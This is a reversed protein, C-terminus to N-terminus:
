LGGLSVKQFFLKVMHEELNPVATIERRKNIKIWTYLKKEEIIKRILHNDDPTKNKSKILNIWRSLRFATVMEQTTLSQNWPYASTGACLIPPKDDFITRDEFGSIGPVPYFFSIGVRGAHVALYALTSVIGEPTDNKLGCIFYTVSPIQHQKLVDMIREYQSLNGRRNEYALSSPDLSALSINFQKMGCAILRTLLDTDMLTYDMGNEAYFDSCPFVSRFLKLVKLFYAPHCLLNDDEFNICITKHTQIGQPFLANLKESIINCPITRFQRGHSLFNACFRCSKPCGRTLATTLFIKRTTELTKKLIFVIDQSRSHAMCAPRIINGSSKYFLNPVLSFDPMEAQFQKLFLTFSVEAEGMFVFDVWPTNIFYEPDACAGAGGVMIAPQPDFRRIWEALRISAEAYCFAFCSICILDPKNELIQKACEMLSPGFRQYKSFFAMPGCENVILFPKLYTLADPLDQPHPRKSQMPFNLIHVDWDHARLLQLLIEAGLASARHPTFYFDFVPPIAVVAKLPNVQKGSHNPNIQIQNKIYGMRFAWILLRQM